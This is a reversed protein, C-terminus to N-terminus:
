GENEKDQKLCLDVPAFSPYNGWKPTDAALFRKVDRWELEVGQAEVETPWNARAWEIKQKIFGDIVKLAEKEKM